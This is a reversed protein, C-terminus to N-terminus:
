ERFEKILEILTDIESILYRCTAIANNEILTILSNDSKQAPVIGLINQSYRCSTIEHWYNDYVVEPMHDKLYSIIAYASVLKNFKDNDSGYIRYYDSPNNAKYIEADFRKCSVFSPKTNVQNQINYEICQFQSKLTICEDSIIEGLHLKLAGKIRNLRKWDTWWQVFLSGFLGLLFSVFSVIITGWNIM